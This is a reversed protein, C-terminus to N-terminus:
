LETAFCINYNLYEVQDIKSKKLQNIKKKRVKAHQLLAVGHEMM